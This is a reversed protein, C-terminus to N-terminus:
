DDGGSSGQEQDGSSGENHSGQHDVETATSKMEYSGSKVEIKAATLTGDVSVKATIEVSSGVQLNGDIETSPSLLVIQGNVTVSTSSLAQVTGKVDLEVSDGEHDSETPEVGETPEATESPEPTESVSPTESSNLDEQSALKIEKATMSGDASTTGEVKVSDGVAVGPQIETETTILITKGDITWDSNTMSQVTGVFEFDGSDNQVEPTTDETGVQTPDGTPDSALEIQTAVLANQSDLTLHVDAKDGAKIGPSIATSSNVGFTVGAVTWSDPGINQVQGSFSLEGSSSDFHANQPLTSALKQALGPPLNAPAQGDCAAMAAVLLIALPLILWRKPNRM